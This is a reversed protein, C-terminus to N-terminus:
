EVVIKKSITGKETVVSLIYLGKDLASVDLKEFSTNLVIKGSLTLLTANIIKESSQIEVINKAPNPFIFLTKEDNIKDNDTIGVVAELGLHKAEAVAALYAFPIVYNIAPENTAYSGYHDLYKKATPSPYPTGVDNAQYTPGNVVMGPVPEFVGDAVSIRHHPNMPYKSGFGTVFSFGTPNKGLVYDLCSLAALRYEEDGSIDYAHALIIGANGAIANSGWSFLNNTAGFASKYPMSRYSNRWGNAHSIIKDEVWTLDQDLTTRYHYLYLLGLYYVQNWSTQTNNLTKSISSYYEENETTIYLESAAWSKEDSFNGDGYAGTQFDGGQPQNYAINPNNEAWKWAREAAVLCSDALGPLRYYYQEFIRSAQAMVAAFDLTAATSKMTMYRRQTDFEPMVDGGFVYSSLKHFVGGDYPDQMKIMWRLNWLAEDIIDPINNSSEPINLNLTDFIPRYREYMAFMTYMTIGSNVVYKNYDGADYWGRSASLTGQTTTNVTATSHLYILNDPHGGKRRWDGAYKRTLLLDGSSCRNYFFSKLTGKLVGVAAENSIKFVYSEIAGIRVKYTGITEFATFDAIRTKENALSYTVSEKLTDTFVVTGNSIDILEFLNGQTATLDVGVAIKESKPYYGVQNIRIDQSFGIFTLGVLVSILVQKM